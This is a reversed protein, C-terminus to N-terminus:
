EPLQSFVVENQGNNVRTYARENARITGGSRVQSRENLVHMEMTLETGRSDQWYLIDYKDGRM